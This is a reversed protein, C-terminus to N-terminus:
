HVAAELLTLRPDEEAELSARLGWPLVVIPDTHGFDFDVAIPVDLGATVALLLEDLDTAALGVSPPVRGVVLARADALVGIQRLQQLRRVVTGPTEEEDAELCLIAGALDPWFSTGALTLLTTLNAPALWGEVTGTRVVRPGPNAQMARPRDDDEDWRLVEATWEPSPALEGIPEPHM